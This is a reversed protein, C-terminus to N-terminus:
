PLGKWPRCLEPAACLGGPPVPDFVRVLTAPPAAAPAAALLLGGLWVGTALAAAALGAPAWGAWFAPRARPRRAPAPLRDKLRAALDFGLTPSPLEGLAQRLANLAELRRRCLPCGSLHAALHAQARPALAADAYASLEEHDPCTM